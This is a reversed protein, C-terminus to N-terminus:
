RPVISHFGSSHFILPIVESVAGLREVRFLVIMHDGAPIERDVSCELWATSGRLFVAGGDAAEWEVGAFRDPTQASLQRAVQDHAESLVSIGIRGVHRLVPWTQSENRVCVSVLPPDLSVGVFASAVMGIPQEGHLVCLATVGTPFRGFTNRIRREDGAAPELNIM